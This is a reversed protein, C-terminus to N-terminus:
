PMGPPVPMGMEEMVARADEMLMQRQEATMFQQAQMQMKMLNRRMDTPMSFLSDMQMQAIQGIQEPGMKLVSKTMEAMYKPDFNQMQQMNLAMAQEREEPTMEMFLKMMEEQLKAYKEVKSEPKEIAEKVAKDNTVLYVPTMGLDKRLKDPIADVAQKQAMHVLQDKVFASDLLVDPFELGAMLRITAALTDPAKLLPSSAKLYIKRWALDGSKCIASLADEVTIDKVSASVKKDATKEVLIRVGTQESVQKAINTVSMETSSITVLKPKADPSQNAQTDAFGISVVLVMCVLIVLILRMKSEEKVSLTLQFHVLRSSLQISSDLSGACVYAKNYAEKASFDQRLPYYYLQIITEGIFFEGEGKKFLLGYKGFLLGYEGFSVGYEGFLVGYEGFSVGYEDFSM